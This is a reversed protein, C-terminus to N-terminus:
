EWWLATRSSVGPRFQQYEALLPALVGGSGEVPIERLRGPHEVRKPKIRPLEVDYTTGWAAPAYGFRGYIAPESAWLVAFAEPVDQLQRTMLRSLVGKRRHTARVGVGTVHAAPVVAGPVSLDRTLAKATAVVEDGDNVALAREPEFVARGTESAPWEIMMADAFCRLLEDYEDAAAVRVTLETV